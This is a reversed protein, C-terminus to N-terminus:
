AALRERLKALARREIQEVRQKSVGFQAGVEELTKPTRSELGFREVVVRRWRAPLTAVAAHLRARQEDEVLPDAEHSAAVDSDRLGPEAGFQRCSRAAAAKRGIDASAPRAKDWVWTPVRVAGANKGANKLRCRIFKTAYTSFRWGLEPKFGEAAAILACCAEQTVDELPGIRRVLWNGEWMGRAVACALPLHKETLANRDATM